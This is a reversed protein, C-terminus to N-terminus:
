HQWTLKVESDSKPMIIDINYSRLTFKARKTGLAEIFCLNGERSLYSVYGGLNHHDLGQHEGVALRCLWDGSSTYVVLLVVVALESESNSM